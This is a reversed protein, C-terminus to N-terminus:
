AEKQLIARFRPALYQLLLATITEDTLEVQVDDKVIRVRVGPSADDAVGFSLGERLVDAALGLVFHALTGPRVKAVEAALEEDTVKGAPLLVQVQKDPDEPTARRAVELILQQLFKDDQLTFAVLRRVRDEFEDHFSERLKLIVDRSALRLAQNGNEVISAGEARAQALIEEAERRANDLLTMSQKRAEKILSDAENRGQAVGEQHLRDILEQVGSSQKTDNAM